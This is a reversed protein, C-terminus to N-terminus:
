AYKLAPIQSSQYKSVGIGLVMVTGSKIDALHDKTKVQVDLGKMRKTKAISREDELRKKKEIFEVYTKVDMGDRQKEREALYLRITDASLRKSIEEGVAGMLTDGVARHSEADPYMAVLPGIGIYASLINASASPKFQDSGELVFSGKEVPQGDINNFVYNVTVNWNFGIGSGYIVFTSVVPITRFYDAASLSSKTVIDLILESDFYALDKKDAVLSVTNNKKSFGAVVSPILDASNGKLDGAINIKSIKVVGQSSVLKASNYSSVPNFTTRPGSACGVLLGIAASLVIIKKIRSM